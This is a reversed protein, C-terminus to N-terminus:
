MSPLFIENMHNIRKTQTFGVIHVNYLNTSRTIRLLRAIIDSECLIIYICTYVEHLEWYDIYGM